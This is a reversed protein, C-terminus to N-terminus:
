VSIVNYTLKSKVNNKLIKDINMLDIISSTNLNEGTKIFNNLFEDSVIEVRKIGEDTVKKIFSKLYSRITSSYNSSLFVGNKMLKEKSVFLIIDKKNINLSTFNNETVFDVKYPPEQVALIFIDYEDSRICWSYGSSSYRNVSKNEYVPSQYGIASYLGTFLYRNKENLINRRNRYTTLISAKAGSGEPNICYKYTRGHYQVKSMLLPDFKSLSSFSSLLPLYGEHIVFSDDFIAPREETSFRRITQNRFQVIENM